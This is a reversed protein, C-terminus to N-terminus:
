LDNLETQSAAPPQPQLQPPLPNRPATSTAVPAPKREKADSKEETIESRQSRAESKQGRLESRQNIGEAQGRVEPKMATNEGVKAALYNLRFAVVKTNWAPYMQQFKQLSTQAESYRGLAEVPKGTSSLSDGEQILNYIRVYQDDVGDAHALLATALLALFTALFRKM